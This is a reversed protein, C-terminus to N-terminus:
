STKHSKFLQWHYFLVLIMIILVGEGQQFNASKMFTDCNKQYYKSSFFGKLILKNM